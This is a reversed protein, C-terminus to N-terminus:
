WLSSESRRKRLPSDTVRRKGHVNSCDFKKADCINATKQNEKKKSRFDRDSM